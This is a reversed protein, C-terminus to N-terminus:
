DQGLAESSFPHEEDEISINDPHLHAFIGRPNVKNWYRDKHHKNFFLKNRHGKVVKGCGCKCHKIEKGM